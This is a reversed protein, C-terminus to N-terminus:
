EASRKARSHKGSGRLDLARNLRPNGNVEPKRIGLLLLASIISTLLVLSTAVALFQVGVIGEFVATQAIVLSIEGRPGTIIGFRASDRPPVGFKSLIIGFPIAKSFVATLSVLIAIPLISSLMNTDILMGVSVFFVTAFLNRVPLISKLVDDHKITSTLITGALFAGILPSMNLSIVAFSLLLCFATGFSFANGPFVGDIVEFVKPMVHVGVLFILFVFVPVLLASLLVTSGVLSTGHIHSLVVIMAIFGFLDDLVVAAKTMDEGAKDWVGPNEEIIKVAITTSTSVFIVALLLSQSTDWGILYGLLIGSMFTITCAIGALVFVKPGFKRFSTYEFQLGLVFLMLIAGLQGLFGIDKSGTVFSPFFTSIVIGAFLMGIVSPIRLKHAIAASFLAAFLIMGLNLMLNPDYALEAM